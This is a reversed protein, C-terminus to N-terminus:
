LALDWAVLIALLDDQRPAAAEQLRTAGALEQQALAELATLRELASVPRPIGANGTVPLFTVPYAEDAAAASQAPSAAQL